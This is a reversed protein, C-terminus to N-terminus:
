EKYIKSAFFKKIKIDQVTIGLFASPDCQGMAEWHVLFRKSYVEATIWSNQLLYSMIPKPVESESFVIYELTKDCTTQKFNRYNDM